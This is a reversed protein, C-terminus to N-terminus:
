KNQISFSLEGKCVVRDEVKVIGKVIGGTSIIKTPTIEIVMQDGPYVPRLFRSKVSGIFFLKDEGREKDGYTFLIIATQAMAEMILVGPMVPLDPFHGQFFPENVSVNKLAIAKEGPSFELVKDIMLFPYRQPLLKKIQNIDFKNIKDIDNGM